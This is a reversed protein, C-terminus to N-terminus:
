SARARIWVGRSPMELVGIGRLFTAPQPCRLRRPANPGARGSGGASGGGERRYRARGPGLSRLSALHENGGLLFAQACRSRQDSARSLACLHVSSKSALPHAPCMVAALQDDLRSALEVEAEPQLNLGAGIDARGEKVASLILESSARYLEFLVGPYHASFATVAQSVPSAIAGDTGIIRLLGCRLVQLESLQQRVRSEGQLVASIHEAVAQGASTLRVGRGHRDFLPCGFTHEVAAIHRSVVSVDVDLNWAAESMSKCGALESFIQYSTLLTNSRAGLLSSPTPSIM